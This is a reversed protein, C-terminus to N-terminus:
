RFIGERYAPRTASIRPDAAYDNWWVRVTDGRVEITPMKARETESSVIEGTHFLHGMTTSLAVGIAPQASNPDDYAVAVRDGDSAVSVFAPNDGFVIPVAAHFTKGGDMSHAFFIGRGSKSETFYAIHV